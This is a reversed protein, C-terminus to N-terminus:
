ASKRDSARRMLRSAPADARLTGGTALEVQYQVGLPIGHIRWNNVAQRSVGLARATMAGSGYHSILDSHTMNRCM